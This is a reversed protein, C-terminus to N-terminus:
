SLAGTRGKTRSAEIGACRSTRSRHREDMHLQADGDLRGRQMPEGGHRGRHSRKRIGRALWAPSCPTPAYSHRARTELNESAQRRAAWPRFCAGQLESDCWGAQPTRHLRRVRDSRERLRRAAPGLKRTQLKFRRGLPWRVRSSAASPCRTVWAARVPSFRARTTARASGHRPMMRGSPM